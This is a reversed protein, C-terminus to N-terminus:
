ESTWVVMHVANGMCRDDPPRAEFGHKRYWGLLGPTADLDDQVVSGYIEAIGSNRCHDLLIDLLRTGIGRGRLSETTPKGLIRHLLPATRSDSAPVDNKVTVDGLMMVGEGFDIATLHGVTQGKWEAYASFTPHDFDSKLTVDPDQAGRVITRIEAANTM